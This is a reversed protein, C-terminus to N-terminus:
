MVYCSCLYVKTEIMSDFYKRVLARDKVRGPFKIMKLEGIEKRYLIFGYGQGGGGNIFLQEMTMLDKAPIAQISCICLM